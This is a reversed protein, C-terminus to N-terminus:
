NMTRQKLCNKLSLKMFKNTYEKVTKSGQCCTKMAQRVGLHEGSLTFQKKMLRGLEEWSLKDVLRGTKESLRKYWAQAFGKPMNDTFKLKDQNNTVYHLELYKSVAFWWDGFEVMGDGSFIQNAMLLVSNLDIEM